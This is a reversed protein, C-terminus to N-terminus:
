DLDPSRLWTALVTVIHADGSSAMANREDIITGNMCNCRLCPTIVLIVSKLEKLNALGGM